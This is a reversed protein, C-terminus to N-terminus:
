AMPNPPDRWTTRPSRSVRRFPERLLPEAPFYPWGQTVGFGQRLLLRTLSELVYFGRTIMPDSELGQHVIEARIGALRGISPDIMSTPDLGPDAQRIAEEIERVENRSRGGGAAPVLAEIAIWLLVFGDATPGASAARLYWRCATRLRPEPESEEFRDLEGNLEEFWPNSPEFTRVLSVHDVLALGQGDANFVTLDELVREQALREDLIMALFGAAALVENRWSSFGVSVDDPVVVALSYVTLPRAAGILPYEMWKVFSPTFGPEQLITTVQTEVPGLVNEVTVRGIRLNAPMNLVRMSTFGMRYVGQRGVLTPADVDAGSPSALDGRSITHESPPDVNSAQVIPRMRLCPLWRAGLAKQSDQRLFVLM